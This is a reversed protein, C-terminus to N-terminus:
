SQLSSVTHIMKLKKIRAERLRCNNGNSNKTWGALRRCEQNFHAVSGAGAAQNKSKIFSTQGDKVRTSEVHCRSAVHSELCMSCGLSRWAHARFAWCRM